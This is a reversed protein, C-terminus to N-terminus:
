VTAGDLIYSRILFDCVTRWREGESEGDKKKGRETKHKRARVEEIERGGSRKM